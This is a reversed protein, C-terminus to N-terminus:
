VLTEGLLAKNTTNMVIIVLRFSGAIQLVAAALWKSMAQFPISADVSQKRSM